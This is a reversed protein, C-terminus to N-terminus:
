LLGPLHRYEKMTNRSYFSLDFYMYVITNHIRPLELSALLLFLVSNAM